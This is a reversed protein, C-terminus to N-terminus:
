QKNPMGPRPRRRWIAYGSVLERPRRSGLATMDMVRIAKQAARLGIEGTRMGEPSVRQSCCLPDGVIGPAVVEGTTAAREKQVIRGDPLVTM